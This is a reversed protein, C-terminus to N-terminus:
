KGGTFVWFANTLYAGVLVATGMYVFILILPKTMELGTGSPTCEVGPMMSASYVNQVQGLFSGFIIITAPQLAGIGASFILAMLIMIKDSLTAFRFLGHIPVTPEKKKKAKTKTKKKGTGEKEDGNSDNNITPQQIPLEEAIDSAHKEDISSSETNNNVEMTTTMVIPQATREGNLTHASSPTSPPSGTM